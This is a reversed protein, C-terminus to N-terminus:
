KPCEGLRKADYTMSMRQGGSDITITGTYADTGSYRMEGVATMPTPQTCTMTYTATSATFKYNSVKCDGAAPGKPVSSQPDKLMEATVCQTQKMPPMEMNMGPMSMKMTVEWHGPRMPSQTQALATASLLALLAISSLRRRRNM